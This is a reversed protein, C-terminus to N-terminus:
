RDEDRNTIEITRGRAMMADTTGRLYAYVTDIAVEALAALGDGGLHGSADGYDPDALVDEFSRILTAALGDCAARVTAGHEAATMRASRLGVSDTELAAPLARQGPRPGDANLRALLDSDHGLKKTVSPPIPCCGNSPIGLRGTVTPQLIGGRAYPPVAGDLERGPKRAGIPEGYVTVLRYCDLGTDPHCLPHTRGGRM